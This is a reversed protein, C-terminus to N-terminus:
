HCRVWDAVGYGNEDYQAVKYQDATAPFHQEFRYQFVGDLDVCETMMVVNGSLVLDVPDTEAQNKEKANGSRFSRGLFELTVWDGDGNLTVEEFTYDLTAPLLNSTIRAFFVAEPKVAGNLLIIGWTTAKGRDHVYLVRHNGNDGTKMRETNDELSYCWLKEDLEESLSDDLDVRTVGSLVGFSYSEPLLTSQIIVVQGGATESPKAVVWEPIGDTILKGGKDDNCDVRSIHLISYAGYEETVSPNYVTVGTRDTNGSLGGQQPLGSGM